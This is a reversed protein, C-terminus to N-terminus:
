LCVSMRKSYYLSVHFLLERGPKTLQLSYAVPLRCAGAPSQRDCLGELGGSVLHDALYHVWQVSTTIPTTLIFSSSKDLAWNFCHHFNFQYFWIKVSLSYMLLSSAARFYKKQGYTMWSTFLLANPSIQNEQNSNLISQPNKKTLIGRWPM